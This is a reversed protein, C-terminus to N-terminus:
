IGKNIKKKELDMQEQFHKELVKKEDMTLNETLGIRSYFNITENDKHVLIVVPYGNVNELIELNEEIGKLPKERNIFYEYHVDKAVSLDFPDDTPPAHTVIGQVEYFDDKKYDSYKKEEKCSTLFLCVIILIALNKKM